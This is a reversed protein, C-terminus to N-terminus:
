PGGLAGPVGVARLAELTQQDERLHAATRCLVEVIRPNYTRLQPLLEARIRARLRTTDFNSQDIRYGVRKRKLYALVEARTVTLFPRVLFVPAPDPPPVPHVSSPPIAAVANTAPTAALRSAPRSAPHRAAGSRALAPSSTPGAGPAPMHTHAGASGAGWPPSPRAPAAVRDAEPGACASSENPESDLDDADVGAVAGPGTAAGSAIPALPRSPAMAGLGLTGSGRILRMLFTEAQDDATHAVAVVPCGRGRAVRLLFAYRANRARNEDPGAPPDAKESVFPVGLRAALEAVFAADADSEAGRLAHNFHAAVIRRRPAAAVLLATSDPGGSVAVISEADRPLLDWAPRVAIM